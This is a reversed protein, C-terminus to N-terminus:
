NYFNIIIKDKSKYRRTSLKCCCHSFQLASRSKEKTFLDIINKPVAAASDKQNYTYNLNLNTQQSRAMMNKSFEDITKSKTEYLSDITTNLEAVGLMNYRTNTNKKDFDIDNFKSVDINIVYREFTSKVQPRNKQEKKIIQPNFRMMIIEMM